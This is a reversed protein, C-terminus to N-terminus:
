FLGFAGIHPHHEFDEDTWVEGFCGLEVSKRRTFFGFDEVPEFPCLNDEVSAYYRFVKMRRENM